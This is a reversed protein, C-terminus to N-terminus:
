KITLTLDAVSSLIDMNKGDILNSDSNSGPEYMFAIKAEGSKLPRFTVEAVATRNFLFQGQYTLSKVGTIVLDYLNGEAVDNTQYLDVGEILSTVTKFELQTNDYRLVADYGTIDQNQSDAYVFLTVDQGRVVPKDGGKQSLGLLGTVVTPSVTAIEQQKATLGQGNLKLQGRAFLAIVVVLILAILLTVVSTAM